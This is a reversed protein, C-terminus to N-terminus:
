FAFGGIDSITFSIWLNPPIIDMPPNFFHFFEDGVRDAGLDAFFDPPLQKNSDDLYDYAEDTAIYLWSNPGPSISEKAAHAAEKPNAASGWYNYWPKFDHHSPSTSDQLTHMARGLERMADPHDGKSEFMRASTLLTRVRDNATQRAHAATEGHTGDSMAHMYANAADQNAKADVEDQMDCLLQRDSAPLGSTVLAHDIAIKHIFTAWKGRPDMMNVPNDSVYLYKHLSLPDKNNGKYSDMSWFRGTNPNLYRARAIQGSIEGSDNLKAPSAMKAAPMHTIARAAPSFWSSMAVALLIFLWRQM